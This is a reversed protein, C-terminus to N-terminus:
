SSAFRRDPDAGRRRARGDWTWRSVFVADIGESRQLQCIAVGPLEAYCGWERESTIVFDLDFERILGMCHARAADDIGAFAEDLLILRPALNYSGQGYFSAVAAFLPVTLGLAREGSSAPGSLKRWHGDQWREVRFRHWRRYDLARALQELMSAGGDKGGLADALDREAAIRQQLMAGVIQRDEASWLDPSTNLLRKRAAELGSPAGEEESLPQWQLRYRVGTSTPRKHLEKNIENVHNEAAQLLRQVEAAIEAQLHNELVARENATLLESRQAIEETLRALLRDPREPRNQYVIQVVLGWDNPDAMSQHGLATLARQLETLEEALQRQVRERADDDDKIEVLAQEARRALTLAPDITWPSGLDPVEAQPLAVSLLGTAAFQQLRAVAQARAETRQRLSEEAVAAKEAAVARAQGALSRAEGAAKLAKEGGRAAERAEALRQQLEHVKAGVAERLAVLRASAEEAEFRSETLEEERQRFDDRTDGERARQRQWEPVASRLERTAEVLRSRADNFGDLATEVSVLADPFEPLRLDSADRSLAERARNLAQEAEQSARDAHALRDRAALLERACAAASRHADRLAQEKPARLWEDAAQREAQAHEELQARLTAEDEALGLLREAIEALRRTRAAARAAFGIYTAATKSWAGTLPGLRFRGDPAIWAETDGPDEEGCGVGALLKNVLVARVTSKDPVVARLWDALSPQHRPRLLAQTDHLLAGNDARQLQGDPTVWADLLGAAELAAEIGARQTAGVKDRFDVLQWLPAGARGVRVASARTYPLPPQADIGAELQAREVELAQQESALAREQNVLELRCSALRRSAQQQATELAQQAPNHGDLDVVWAALEALPAEPALQLQSLRAFHNEWAEVLAQGEREVSADAQACQKAAEHAADRLEDRRRGRETHQIEATGTDAHRRRLLALDGRRAAVLSRLEAEASDFASPALEVLADRELRSLPNDAVAGAVGAEAACASSEHRAKHLAREAYAVRQKREESEAMERQLRERMKVLAAEGAELAHRRKREEQAASELRSADQMTPDHLLTELRTREHVLGLEANEHDGKARVEEAQAEELRAQAEHRARSANDVDTQAQRLTRAQRRTQTGAYARYRQVFREVAKSLVQYEELERRDEELQGLAEAVDGLLEPAIPPLAETLANSLATEDPKKSLQPQRLQILTDMLAGYRKSGLRFLREDVARRYSEATDFVQGRGELAERLREKALVVRQPSILWLEQNLRPGGNVGELLFFWSEVHSRAAAASLGAGLTLYRPTGDEAIRGLEIWAYGTRREYDNMLLNWGMKKGADGDPEVRSPKLQADFLLPLTLSLVKSKGTGNNGRLLLHGDRFWFEESDYRFLEVLGLRLPQWRERTPIPLPPRASSSVSSEFLGNM